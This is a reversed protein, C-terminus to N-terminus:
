RNTRFLWPYHWRSRFLLLKLRLRAFFKGKAELSSIASQLEAQCGEAEEATVEHRSFAAKEACSKIKPSVAEGFQSLHLAVNYVAIVIRHADPHARRRLTYRIFPLLILVAAPLLLWFPSLRNTSDAEPQDTIIGVPLQPTPSPTPLASNEPSPVEAPAIQQASQDDASDASSAEVPVPSPVAQGEFSDEVSTGNSDAPFDPAASPEATQVPSSAEASAPEPSSPLSATQEGDRLGSQGTVEVPLWGLGDQYVEVWAHADRGTVEVTQGAETFALFGETMRAPIGAARYLAAAATAFHICYGRHAETLFYLAYDSSPYADTSIDYEGSHQVFEAIDALLTESSLDINNAQLLALLASRTADPLRTYYAHAYSRYSLEEEAPLSPQLSAFSGPYYVAQYRFEANFPVNSDLPSSVESFYPLFCYPAAKLLRVTVRKEGVGSAALAKATLSLSSLPANEEAPLWGTGTYDGFSVARLYLPGTESSRLELFAADLQSPSTEQTLDMKGDADEWLIELPEEQQAPSSSDPRYESPPLQLSSPLEFEEHPLKQAIDQMAERIANLQRSFHLQPAKYEFGSPNVVLLLAALLAILPLLSFLVGLGSGSERRYYSGGIATLFWFLLMGLLPLLPPTNSVAVCFVCFPLTGLLALDTRAGKSSLAITLYACELFGFCLFLFDHGSAASRYPYPEGRHFYQESLRGAIRDFFDTLQSFVAPKQTYCLLALLALSLLIGALNYRSGHATYWLCLCLIALYFYFSSGVSCRLSELLLQTQCFVALLLLALNVVANLNKKM